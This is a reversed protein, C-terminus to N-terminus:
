KCAMMGYGINPISTKRKKALVSCAYEFDGTGARALEGAAAPAAQRTSSSHTPAQVGEWILEIKKTCGATQGMGGVVSARVVVCKLAHHSSSIGSKRKSNMEMNWITVFFNEKTTECIRLDNKGMRGIMERHMKPDNTKSKQKITPLLGCVYM